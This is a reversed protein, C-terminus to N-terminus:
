YRPTDPRYGNNIRDKSLMTTPVVPSPERPTRTVGRNRMDVVHYLSAIAMYVWMAAPIVGVLFCILGVITIPIGLLGILFVKGAHHNTMNWSTKVAEFGGLKKDLLLFPTFALKFYVVIM